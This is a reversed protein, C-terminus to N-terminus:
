QLVVLATRGSGSSRAGEGRENSHEGWRSEICVRHSPSLAARGVDSTTTEEADNMATTYQNSWTLCSTSSLRPRALSLWLGYIWAQIPYGWRHSPDLEVSVSRVTMGVLDTPSPNNSTVVITDDTQHDFFCLQLPWPQVEPDSVWRKEEEFLPWGLICM